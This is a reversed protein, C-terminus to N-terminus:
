EPPASEPRSHLFRLRLENPLHSTAPCLPDDAGPPFLPLRLSAIGLATKTSQRTELVPIGIGVALCTARIVTSQSAYM